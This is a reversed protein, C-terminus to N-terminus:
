RPMLVRFFHVDNCSAIEGEGKAGKKVGASVFVNTSSDANTSLNPTERTRSKKHTPGNTFKSSKILTLYTKKLCFAFFFIIFRASPLSQIDPHTCINAGVCVFRCQVTNCQVASCHVDSLIVASCWLMLIEIM